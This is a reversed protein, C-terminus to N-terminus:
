CDSLRVTFITVLCCLLNMTKDTTEHRAISISIVLDITLKISQTKHKLNASLRTRVAGPLTVRCKINLSM